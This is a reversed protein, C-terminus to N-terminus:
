FLNKERVTLQVKIRNATTTKGSSSPGALLIFNIDDDEVIEDCLKSIENEFYAESVEILLREQNDKIIENVNHM